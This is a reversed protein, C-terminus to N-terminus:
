KSSIVFGVSVVVPEGYSIESPQAEGFIVRKTFTLDNAYVLDGDVDVEKFKMGINYIFPIEVEEFTDKFFRRLIPVSSDFLFTM